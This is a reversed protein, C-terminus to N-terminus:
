LVYINAPAFSSAVMGVRKTKRLTERLLVYGKEAKKGPVLFYPKEYFQPGISLTGTWIPTGHREKISLHSHANKQDDRRVAAM